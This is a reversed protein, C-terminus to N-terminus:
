AYFDHDQISVVFTRNAKFWKSSSISPNLFFLSDGVTNYGELALKAAIVAQDSPDRYITGAPVVSFQGSQFVVGKVTDPFSGSENAIRNLVVNGVGIMGEFPECGAEAYVVRSLWYLSDADYYTDGSQLLSLGSTDIDASWADKDWNIGVNFVKAMARIPVMVTGNINYSGDPIYIYRGNAVFYHNSLTLSIDIGEASLTVTGTSQDWSSDFETKLMSECFALMPVYTTSGLMYATGLFEGDVYLPVDTYEIVQADAGAAQSDALVVGSMMSATVVVVCIIAILTKIRKSM